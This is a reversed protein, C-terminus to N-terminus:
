DKAYRNYPEEDDKSKKKSEKYSKVGSVVLFVAAGIFVFGILITMIDGESFGVGFVKEMSDIVIVVPIDTKETFEKLSREVTDKNVNLSSFNTVHSEPSLSHSEDFYFSSDLGKREVAATMKEMARALNSSLSYTYDSGVSDLMARGFTTYEDGFMDSIDAKVNDGIWAITYYGTATEDTLFVILLNDEYADGSDGFEAEYQVSAYDQFAKENYRVSGGSFLTGLSSMIMIVAFLVLIFPMM